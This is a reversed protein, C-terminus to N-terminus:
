LRSLVRWTAAHDNSFLSVWHATNRPNLTYPKLMRATDHEQKKVKHGDADDALIAM